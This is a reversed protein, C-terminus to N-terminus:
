ITEANLRNWQWNDCFDCATNLDQHTAQLTTKQLSELVQNWLLTLIGPELENITDVLSRSQLRCHAKQEANEAIGDSVNRM